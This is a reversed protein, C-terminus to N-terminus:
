NSLQLWIGCCIAVLLRNNKGMYNPQFSYAKKVYNKLFILIRVKPFMKYKQKKKKKKM